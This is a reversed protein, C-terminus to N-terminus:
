PQQQEAQDGDEHLLDRLLHIMRLADAQDYKQQEPLQLYAEFDALSEQFRGIKQMAMARNFLAPGCHPDAALLATFEDIAEEPRDLERWLLVARAVRAQWFKPDIQYARAFYRIAHEHESPMKSQNGFYRHLGGWTYILWSRIFRLM